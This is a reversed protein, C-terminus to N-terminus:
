DRSSLVALRRREVGYFDPISTNETPICEVTKKGKMIDYNAWYKRAVLPCDDHRGSSTDPICSLAARTLKKHNKLRKGLAVISAKLQRGPKKFGDKRDLEPNESGELELLCCCCRENIENVLKRCYSSDSFPGALFSRLGIDTVFEVLEM